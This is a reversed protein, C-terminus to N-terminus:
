GRSPIRRRTASMPPARPEEHKSVADALDHLQFVTYTKATLEVTSHRMLVRAISLPVGARAKGDAAFRVLHAELVERVVSGLSRGGQPSPSRLSESGVLRRLRRIRM